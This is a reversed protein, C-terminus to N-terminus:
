TPIVKDTSWGIINGDGDKSLTTDLHYKESGDGKYQTETFSSIEGDSWTIDVERIKPTDSQDRIVVNTVEGDSNYTIVGESDEAIEHVLTDANEHDDEGWGSGASIEELVQQVNTASTGAISSPDVGVKSAGPPYRFSATGGTSDNISEVVTVKTDTLVEDITYTGDAGTTGSLVIKDGSEARADKDRILYLNTGTFLVEKTSATTSVVSVGTNYESTGDSALEEADIISGDEIDKNTIGGPM